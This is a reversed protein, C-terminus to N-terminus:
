RSLFGKLYLAEELTRGSVDTQERGYLNSYRKPDSKWQKLNTKKGDVFIEGDLHISVKKGRITYVSM